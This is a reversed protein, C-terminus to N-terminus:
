SSASAHAAASGGFGGFSAPKAASAPATSPRLAPPPASAVAPTKAASKGFWAFFFSTRKGRKEECKTEGNENTACKQGSDGKVDALAAVDQASAQEVRGPSMTAYVAGSLGIAGITALAIVSTRKKGLAGLVNAEAPAPQPVFTQRKGFTTKQTKL